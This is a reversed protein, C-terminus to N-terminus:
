HGIARGERRPDAAGRLRPAGGDYTIHIAHLGSNMDRTEVTHGRATLAAEVGAIATDQELETAGGRNCRHPLDVAAQIDLNWDITAILTKAVYCIIRSGGPSGVVMALRGQPDFVITPAMSSRPRKGAEVRNAVLQGDREPAFSFDTLQNNLLFGRVMLASGFAFEISTTLAVANGDRDVVSIHSTAPLEPSAASQWTAQHAGPPRGAVVEPAARQSDILAARSKLYGPDLLGNVPVAVFDPDAIYLDRDAYALRSAEAFLHVAEASNPAMAALDFHALLGLIQLVTTGGSSPPGMGCVRYGRYPLCVPARLRAVYGALDSERLLGPNVPANRVAAIMDTAIDGRYFADAGGAAIRKLSDAFAQNRLIAGVPKAAGDADLLYDSIAPMQKITPVRNALGNLRPSIAFGSEALAIAPEFLRAWPLEGHQKHAVELMRLLGPTGVSRGGVLAEFYGPLDGDPKVFLSGTAAAPATERGDYSQVAGSSAQYHVLFAGGGIGSSQPEVLNLVLQAAIAADTASGGEALIAAGARAAHPNAAAVMDLSATATRQATAGTGSEPQVGQNDAGADTPFDVVSTCAGLVLIWAIKALAATNRVIM